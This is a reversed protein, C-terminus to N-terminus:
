ELSQFYINEKFFLPFMKKEKKVYSNKIITKNLKKLAYRIRAATQFLLTQCMINDLCILSFSVSISRDSFYPKGSEVNVM